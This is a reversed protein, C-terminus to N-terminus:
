LRYIWGPQWRWPAAVVDALPIGAVLHELAYYTARHGVVAITQGGFEAAAHELWSGARRAVQELSEGGPYPTSVHEVRHAEMEAAPGRTLAGYNCERLRPDRIVPVGRAGFAIEATRVARTLDSTFVAALDDNARRRALDRAQQEGTPSLPADHWGSAIGAENDVSTSHTEFVIVLAPHV